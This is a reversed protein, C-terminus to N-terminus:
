GSRVPVGSAFQFHGNFTASSNPAIVNTPQDTVTIVPQSTIIFDVLGGYLQRGSNDEVVLQYAYNGPSLGTM